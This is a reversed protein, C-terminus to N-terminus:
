ESPTLAGQSSPPITPRLAPKRTPSTPPSPSPVRRQIKVLESKSLQQNSDADLSDFFKKLRATHFALFEGESVQGNKDADMNELTPPQPRPPPTRKKPAQSVVRPKGDDKDGQPAGDQAVLDTAALAAGGIIGVWFKLKM